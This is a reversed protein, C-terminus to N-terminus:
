KLLSKDIFIVSSVQHTIYNKSVAVYDLASLYDYTENQLVDSMTKVPSLEACIVKPRYKQWDNSQLIELDFGEADINLLDMEQGKPLYKEFLTSLRMTNIPIEKQVYPILGNLELYAKSFTNMTSHEDIFYYTLPGEALSIGAEINIDRPRQLDFLKKSGPCPDVNIGSWGNLYFFYTNSFKVPDYAGIDVFFGKYGTIDRKLIDSFLAHLISDEGSQAFYYTSIEHGIVWKRLRAKLGPPLIKKIAKIM